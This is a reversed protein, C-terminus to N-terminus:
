CSVTLELVHKAANWVEAYSAVEGRLSTVKAVVEVEDRGVNALM